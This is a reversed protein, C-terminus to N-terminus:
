QKGMDMLIYANSLINFNATFFNIDLIVDFM